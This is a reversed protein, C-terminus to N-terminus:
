AELWPAVVDPERPDPIALQHDIVAQATPLAGADVLLELRADGVLDLVGQYVPERGHAEVLGALRNGQMPAQDLPVRVPQDGAPLDQLDLRELPRLIEGAAAPGAPANNPLHLGVHVEQPPGPRVQDVQRPIRATDEAQADPVIELQPLLDLVLDVPQHQGDLVHLVRAAGASM